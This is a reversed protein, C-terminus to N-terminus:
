PRGTQLVGKFLNRKLYYLMFDGHVQAIVGVLEDIVDLLVSALEM